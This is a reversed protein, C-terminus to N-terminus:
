NLNSKITSIYENPSKGIVEKFFTFFPNYSSFGVEKSLSELTNKALYNNSILELSNKIRSIKKFDSYSIKSHYKFIYKLHSVPINLVQALDKISFKPNTFNNNNHLSANLKFLYEEINSNIKEKLLLDQNNNIKIKSNVNWYKYNHSDRNTKSTKKELYSYGYLIEPFILIIIFLVIWVIASIWLYNFPNATENLFYEKFYTIIFRFEFAMIVIFILVTWKKILINQSKAFSLNAKKNWINKKLTLFILSIYILSFPLFFQSYNYNLKCNLIRDFLLFEREIIVLLPLLLHMLDKYIRLKHKRILNIFYLYFTPILLSIYNTINLNFYRLDSNNNLEALGVLLLRTMSIFIVFILYFNFIRNKKLNRLIISIVIYGLFSAFILLINTTM